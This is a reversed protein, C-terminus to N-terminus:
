TPNQTHCAEGGPINGLFLQWLFLGSGAENLGFAVVCLDPFAETAEVILGHGSCSLTTVLMGPFLVFHKWAIAPVWHVRFTHGEQPVAMYVGKGLLLCSRRVVALDVPFMTKIKLGSVPKLQGMFSPHLPAIFEPLSPALLSERWPPPSSRM